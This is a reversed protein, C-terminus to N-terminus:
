WGLYTAEDFYQITEKREESTSHTYMYFALTFCAFVWLLFLVMLIEETKM